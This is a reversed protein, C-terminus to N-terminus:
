PRGLGLLTTAGEGDVVGGGAAAHVPLAQETNGMATPERSGIVVHNTVRQLAALIAWQRPPAAVVVTCTMGSSILVGAPVDDIHIRVPIRQALRVWEFTPNVNALLQPGAPNDRDTIGRSVSEVHGRLPPGGSMLDIEVPEGVNVLPIKTEEFFGSVRYSDSDILAMVKAGVAAYQGVDLTLNTVFGNVPARVITRDLNLQATSRDALAQQYAAAASNATLVADERAEDSIALTTLKVRRSAEQNRMDMQAKHAVVNAEATALARTYRERDLIFLVDGKHVFQNDKVRLDDVFGSVDPAVSVVDAQVRADRTWPSLMYYDWLEYGGACGAAVIVLTILVRAVTKM